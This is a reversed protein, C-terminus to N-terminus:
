SAEEEDCAVLPRGVVNGASEPAQGDIISGRFLLVNHPGIDEGAANNRRGVSPEFTLSITRSSGNELDVIYTASIWGDDNTQYAVDRGVVFDEGNRRHTFTSGDFEVTDRDGECAELNFWGWKGQVANDTSASQGCATLGLAVIGVIGFRLMFAGGM